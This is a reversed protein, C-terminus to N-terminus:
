RAGGVLGLKRKARYYLGGVASETRGIREAVEARSLGENVLTYAAYEDQSLSERLLAFAAEVEEEFGLASSVSRGTAVLDAERGEAWARRRRRRRWSDLVRRVSVWRVFATTDRVYEDRKGAVYALMAGQAADEAEAHDGTRTRAAAYAVGWLWRLRVEPRATSM